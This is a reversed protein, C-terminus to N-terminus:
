QKFHKTVPEELSAARSSQSDASAAKGPLAGERWIVGKLTM